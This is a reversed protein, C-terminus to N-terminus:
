GLTKQLQRLLDLQSREVMAATSGGDPQYSNRISIQQSGVGPKLGSLAKRIQQLERLSETAPTPAYINPRNSLLGGMLAATQDAPLIGGARGPTFLEPGEEGVLYTQGAAVPGGERRVGAITPTGTTTTPPTVGAQQYAALIADANQKDLDRQQQAFDAQRKQQQEQFSQAERQQQFDFDAQKDQSQRQYDAEKKALQDAFELRKQNLQQQFENDKARQADEFEARKQLIQQQFESDKTRQADEFEVRKQRQEDEFTSRALQQEAEFTAREQAQAAELAAADAAQQGLLAQRSEAERRDETATTLFEGRDEAEGLIESKRGEVIESARIEAEIEKQRQEDEEKFQQILAQRDASTKALQLQKEREIQQDILREEETKRADAIEKEFDLREQHQRKLLDSKANALREELDLEAKEQQQRFDEAASSQEQRFDLEAQIREDQFERISKSEEENFSQLAKLREDQFAQVSEAEEKNFEQIAENREIGYDRLAREQERAFDELNQLRGKNYDEEEALREENFSEFLEQRQEAAGKEIDELTQNLLAVQDVGEATAVSLAETEETTGRLKDLYTQLKAAMADRQEIDAQNVPESARLTSIATEVSAALNEAEQSGAEFGKKSLDLFAQEVEGTKDILEDFAVEARSNAADEVREKFRDLFNGQKKSARDLTKEYERLSKDIDEIGQRLPSEKAKIQLFTGIALGVSTAAAAILALIPAIRVVSALLGMFATRVAILSATLSTNAAAAGGAAAAGAANAAAVQGTAAANDRKALTNLVIAATDLLTILRSKIQLTQYVALVSVMTATTGALGAIAFVITQIPGPMTNFVVLLDNLGRVLPELFKSAFEGINSLLVQLSGELLNLAGGFGKLMAAGADAAVGESHNIKDAVTDLRGGVNDMLALFAKGGQVGFLANALIEKDGKSEITDFGTKIIPLIQSLPLLYGNADRIQAGLSKFAETGKMRTLLDSFETNVGASALSVRRLAEALATGGASGQIGEDALLGLGLLTEELPQNSQKAQSGVYSLAEGLQLISTNTNNATAVLQDAVRGTESASLKYIRVAQGIVTGVEELGDGSAESARVLGELADTQEKVTFGARSLQITLAAIEGPTKSTEIGLRTIEERLAALEETGVSGTIVGTQRLANDFDLFTQTAQAFIAGMAAGAAGATIALDEIGGEVDTVGESIQDLSNDLVKFQQETLGVEKGLVKFAAASEFGAEKLEKLNDVIELVEEPSKGLEAVLRAASKASIGMEQSLKAVAQASGDVGKLIKDVQQQVAQSGKTGFEIEFLAM